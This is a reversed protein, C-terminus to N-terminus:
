GVARENQEVGVRVVARGGDVVLMPTNTCTKLVRRMFCSADHGDRTPTLQVGLLEKSETDVMAWLYQWRGEVKIKTEDIAVTPRHRKSPDRLLAKARHYWERIAEHSANDVDVFRLV